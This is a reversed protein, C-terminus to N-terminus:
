SGSNEALMSPYNSLTIRASVVEGPAGLPKAVRNNILVSLASADGVRLAAEENARLMITEDAKLLRELPQGGDIRTRIWCERSATLTLVLGEEKTTIVTFSPAQDRLDPAPAAGRGQEPGTPPKAPLPLPAPIETASSRYYFTTPVVAILFVAAAFVQGRRHTIWAPRRWHFRVVTPRPKAPAPAQNPEAMHGQLPRGSQEKSLLQTATRLAGISTELCSAIEVRLQALREFERRRQDGPGAMFAELQALSEQLHQRDAATQQLFEDVERCDYGRWRLRFKGSTSKRTFLSIV